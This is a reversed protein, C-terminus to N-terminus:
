IDFMKCINHIVRLIVGAPFLTFIMKSNIGHKYLEPVISIMKCLNSVTQVAYYLM